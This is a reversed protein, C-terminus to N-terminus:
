QLNINDFLKVSKMQNNFPIGEGPDPGFLFLREEAAASNITGIVM